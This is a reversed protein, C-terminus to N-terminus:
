DGGIVGDGEGPKQFTKVICVIGGAAERWVNVVEGAGCFRTSGIQADKRVASAASRPRTFGPTATSASSDDKRM